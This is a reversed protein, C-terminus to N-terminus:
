DGRKMGERLCKNEAILEKNIREFGENQRELYRIRQELKQIRIQMQMMPPLNAEPEAVAPDPKDIM